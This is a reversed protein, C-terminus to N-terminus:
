QTGGLESSAMYMVNWRKRLMDMNEEVALLDAQRQQEFKRELAQVLEATRQSQRAESEMAAKEVAAQLRRSVEGEIRAEIAATDVAQAPPPATSGPRLFAHALIAVALVAASAFGLQPGSHWFRQWWRPEFIKDSVFAIKRPPEEEPLAALAARTAGLRELEERCEGCARVHAETERREAEALEGLFYGKLDIRKCSM